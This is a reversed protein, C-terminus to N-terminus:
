RSFDDARGPAARPPEGSRLIREAPSSPSSVVSALTAGPSVPRTALSAIPGAEPRAPAPPPEPAAEAIPAPKPGPAPGLPLAAPQGMERRIQENVDDTTRGVDPPLAAIDTSAPEQKNLVKLIETDLFHALKKGGAATLHIGDPGRLKVKQGEINPGFADFQGGQDAFDDFIDVFTAGAKEANEKFVQNLAVVQANFKDSRMPPLGVWLVPVHAAHLPAVVAQIRQSYVAKWRDTLPDVYDKGDRLQQMDNIGLMVVVYDIKPKTDPVPAPKDKSEKEKADKVKAEKDKADKEKPGPENGGVLERAAKAWDFYDDRALGSADRARDIVGIEPKDELDEDMGDAASIALSDGLVYVFETAEPSPASPAAPASAERTPSPERPKKRKHAVASPRPSPSDSNKPAPSPTASPPPGFLHSFFGGIGGNDEADASAAAFSAAILAVSLTAALRPRGTM